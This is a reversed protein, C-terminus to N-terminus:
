TSESISNAEQKRSRPKTARIFTNTSSAKHVLFHNTVTPDYSTVIFSPFNFIRINNPQLTYGDQKRRGATYQKRPGKDIERENFFNYKLDVSILFSNKM